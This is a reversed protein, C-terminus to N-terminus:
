FSVKVFTRFFFFKGRKHAEKVLTDFDGLTGFLPDVDVFNSIDYGMDAGGSPYFPQIWISEVGLDHIYDLKETIGPITSIASNIYFILFAIIFFRIKTFFSQLM